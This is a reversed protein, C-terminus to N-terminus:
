GALDSLAPRNKWGARVMAPALYKGSLEDYLGTATTARGGLKGLLHDLTRDITELFAALDEDSRVHRTHGPVLSSSRYSLSFIRCGRALLSDLLRRHADHDAGEPSLGIRELLGFRALLEPLQLERAWDSTIRPFLAPAAFALLGAFGVTFPLELLPRREGFWYPRPEIRRFNPGGKDDFSTYPVVSTGVAYGFDELVSGTWPGVGHRGARYVRPRQGFSREIMATLQYLKERELEPPLNGAFSNRATVAEELPPTVWPHLHAGIECLGQSQYGGLLRVSAEDSAVPYDVLYTPVVGHKAFIEQARDQAAINSVGVNDRSLPAGWDFEEEAEVFVLVRPAEAAPLDIFDANGHDLAEATKNPGSVPAHRGSAHARFVSPAPQKSGDTPSKM